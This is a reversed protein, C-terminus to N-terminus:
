SRPRRGSPGAGRAAGRRRPTAGVVKAAADPSRRLPALLEWPEVDLASAVKALWDLTPSMKGALVNFLQARSVAAFDALATLTLKKETALARLNTALLSRLAAADM